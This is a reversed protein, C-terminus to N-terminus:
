AKAPRRIGDLLVEIMTELRDEFPPAPLNPKTIALSAVGHVGEWLVFALAEADDLGPRLQRQDIAAQLVQVLVAFSGGDTMLEDAYLEPTHDAHGMFMIRYHEPNALAFRGYARALEALTKLPDESPDFAGAVQAGLREFQRSCVEFILHAKDPFHRYIAPATVGAADAVARISVEEESARELLLAEAVALIEERTEEGHGRRGRAAAM